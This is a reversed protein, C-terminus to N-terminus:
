RAPQSTELARLGDETLRYVRWDDLPVAGMSRYFRISPKNWNLCTWEMRGCGRQLATHALYLFLAKGYGKGRFEPKVYLDEIYLGAKGVFTSYNHFYLVFGVEQDDEMAFVVEAIQRDFVWDRLMDETVQVDDEMKEYRAIGHIFDLILPVDERTAKRIHM